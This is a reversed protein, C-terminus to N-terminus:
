NLHIAWPYRTKLRWNSLFINLLTSRAMRSFRISYSPIGLYVEWYVLVYYYTHIHCLITLAKWHFLQDIGVCYNSHIWEIAFDFFWVFRNWESLHESFMPEDINRENATQLQDEPDTIRIRMFNYDTKSDFENSLMVCNFNYRTFQMICKAIRGNTWSEKQM